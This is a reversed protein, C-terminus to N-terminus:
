RRKKPIFTYGNGQVSNTKRDYVVNVVFCTVLVFLSTFIKYNEPPRDNKTGLSSPSPYEKTMSPAAM